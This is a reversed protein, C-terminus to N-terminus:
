LKRQGLLKKQAIFINKRGTNATEKHFISNLNFSEIVAKRNYHLNPRLMTQINSM